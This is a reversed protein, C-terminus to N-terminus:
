SECNQYVITLTNAVSGFSYSKQIVLKKQAKHYTYFVVYGVGIPELFQILSNTEAVKYIPIKNNNAVKVYYNKGELVISSSLNIDEYPKYQMTNLDLFDSIAKKCSVIVESHLFICFFISLFCLNKM